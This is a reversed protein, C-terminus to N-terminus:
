VGVPERIEVDPFRAPILRQEVPRQPDAIRALLLEAAQGGIERGRQCARVVPMDLAEVTRDDDVCAFAVDGPVDYGLGRLIRAVSMAARDDTCLLATPRDRSAMVSKVISEPAEEHNDFGGVLDTQHVIDEEELARLYGSFRDKTTSIGFGLTLFGVRQHGQAILARTLRYGLEENDTGVYDTEFGEVYRDCLVFPFLADRFGALMEQGSPDGLEKWLALGEVQTSRIQILSETEVEDNVGLFYTVTQIGREQLYACFGEIVARVHYSSLFPVAMAVMRRGEVGLRRLREAAPAVFSGRGPFRNLYGELELERLAQRTQGRSVGLIRAYDLESPVRAGEPLVGTEIREKLERKIFEYAPVGAPIIESESM